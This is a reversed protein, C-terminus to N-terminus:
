AKLFVPRTAGEPPHFEVHTLNWDSGNVSGVGIGAEGTGIAPRGDREAPRYSTQLACEVALEDVGLGLPEVSHADTVEGQADVTVRVMALGALRAIRAEPTVVDCRPVQLPKPALNGARRINKEIEFQSDPPRAGWSLKVIEITHEVAQDADVERLVNYRSSDVWFTRKLNHTYTAEVVSCPISDGAVTVVEQRLMRASELGKETITYDAFGIKLLAQRRREAEADLQEKPVVARPAPAIFGGRAGNYTAMGHDHFSTFHNTSKDEFMLRDPAGYALDITTQQAPGGATSNSVTAELEYGPVAKYAAAVRDLIQRGSPAPQAHALFAGILIVCACRMM